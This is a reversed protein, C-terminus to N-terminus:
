ESQGVLFPHVLELESMRNYRLDIRSAKSQAFYRRRELDESHMSLYCPRPLIRM